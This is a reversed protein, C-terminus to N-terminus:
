GEVNFRGLVEDVGVASAIVEVVLGASRLEEHCHVQLPHLRGTGRPSKLEVFITKGDRALMVDPFGRRSRSELKHFVVGASKAERKLYEHLNKETNM